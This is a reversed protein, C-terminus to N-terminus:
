STTHDPSRLGPVSPLSGGTPSVTSTALAVNGLTLKVLRRM